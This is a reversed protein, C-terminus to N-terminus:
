PAYYTLHKSVEKTLCGCLHQKQAQAYAVYLWEIDGFLEQVEKPNDTIIIRNGKKAYLFLDKYSFPAIFDIDSTMAQMAELSLHTIATDMQSFTFKRKM